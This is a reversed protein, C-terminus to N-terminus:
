NYHESKQRRIRSSVKANTLSTDFVDHIQAM